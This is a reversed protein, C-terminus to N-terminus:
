YAHEFLATKHAARGLSGPSVFTIQPTMRLRSHMTEALEAALRDLQDTNTELGHEVKLELPPVVRPPPERLVIRFIGTVRPVFSSVVDAIASPYVIVGKVKLMDDTRGVVRYRLGSAGCPCPSTMVEHMDGFTHRVWTLGEGVFTTFCAEGTAGDELPIPQKTVPDFLEYLALDDAVWHMGQYEPHICSGGLGAGVDIVSAGYAGELRQRVAPIGAGPEGGCVLLHIGLDSVPGGLVEPAREILHEALSPTAALVTAGFQRGMKLIREAGSEAGIPIVSAGLQMGALVMPVGGIFLGLAFAHLLRDSPRIGARWFVRAWVEGWVDRLDVETLPYPTPEGTTGSTAAVLRVAELPGSMTAAVVQDMDAYELALARFDEKTFPPLMKPWDALSRLQDPRAGHEDMWRRWYSPGHYLAELRERLRRLQLGQIAESNQLVELDMNWYPREGVTNLHDTLQTTAM